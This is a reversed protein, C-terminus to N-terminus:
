IVLRRTIAGVNRCGALGMALDFEKRLISIAVRVGNEGDVALGWLVPRGILVARAGLALAKLVDTGRRIGGDVLIEMRGDVAHAIEELVDITAPSTDLQRGGHNSVVIADVGHEVALRADDSDVIGKVLIPVPSVSRLWEVDRWTIAPDVYTNIYAALGSGDVNSPFGELGAPMLNLMAIGSPLAFRNRTDRERAGLLPADVTLVIAKCGAAVARDVLARTLSRDKYIYLQFWVPGTAAAVVDEISTTSLTSLIMVTEEAGAARASALEGDPHAMRQLATPAVIIPLSIKTGLVTTSLDRTSVDVLVRYRLRIRDYARHNEALTIEDHAGGAYYDFVMPELCSAAARELDYLNVIDM